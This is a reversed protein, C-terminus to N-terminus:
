TGDGNPEFFPIEGLDAVCRTGYELPSNIAVEGTAPDDAKGGVGQGRAADWAQFLDRELKVTVEGGSIVCVDIISDTGNALSALMDATPNEAWEPGYFSRALTPDIPEGEFQLGDGSARVGNAA